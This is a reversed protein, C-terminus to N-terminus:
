RTPSLASISPAPEHSCAEGEMRRIAPEFQAAPRSAGLVGFARPEVLGRRWGFMSFTQDDVGDNVVLAISHSGAFVARHLAEDDESFFGRALSCVAQRDPPCNRCWHRSPHSHWWGLMIEGRRRLALAARVETWTDSTFTLKTATAETHRAPIQATVRVFLDGQSTDRHVHGILVGGTEQADVQLALAAAEDLLTQPVFVPVDEARADGVLVAGSSVESLTADSVPLPVSVDEADFRIGAGKTPTEGAPFAAALYLIREGSSLLGREVFAGTSGRALGQLYAPPLEIPDAPFASGGVSLRFGRVYPEGITLHWLPEVCTVGEAEGGGALGRRLAGFRAWEEAASWDPDVAVQGVRSGDTRFIELQYHYGSKVM